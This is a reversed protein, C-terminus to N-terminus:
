FNRQEPMEAAATTLSEKKKKMNIELGKDTVKLRGISAVKALMANLTFLPWSPFGGDREEDLRRKESEARQPSQYEFYDHIRRAFSSWHPDKGNKMKPLGDKLEQWKAEDTAKFKIGPCITKMAAAQWAFTPWDGEITGYQVLMVKMGDRDKETIFLDREPDLIRMAMAQRSFGDWNNFERCENLWEEMGEWDKETLDREPDFILEAEPAPEELMMDHVNINDPNFKPM